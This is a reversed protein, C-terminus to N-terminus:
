FLDPYGQRALQEELSGWEECGVDGTGYLRVIWHGAQGAQMNERADKARQAELKAEIELVTKGKIGFWVGKWHHSGDFEIILDYDPLYFDYPHRGDIVRFQRVYSIGAGQLRSSITREGKTDCMRLPNDSMWKSRAESYRDRQEATRVKGTVGVGIKRNKEARQEPTYAAERKFATERRAAAFEAKQKRGKLVSGNLLYHRLLGLRSREIADTPVIKGRQSGGIKRKTEETHRRGTAAISKKRLTEASPKHGPMFMAPHNQPVIGKRGASVHAKFTDSREIGTLKSRITNIVEGAITPSGPYYSKYDDVTLGHRKLHTGTIQPYSRKCVACVVTERVPVPTDIPLKTVRGERIAGVLLGAAFMKTATSYAIEHRVAWAYLSVM